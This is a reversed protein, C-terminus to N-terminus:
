LGGRLWAMDDPIGAWPTEFVVVPAGAARV